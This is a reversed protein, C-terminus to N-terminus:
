WGLIKEIENAVSLPDLKGNVVSIRQSAEYYEVVKDTEAHFVELRHRITKDDDDDRGRKSLRAISVDDNIDILLVKEIICNHKDVFEDLWKAQEIDRPFGDSIIYSDDASNIIAEAVLENVVDNDVLDGSELDVGIASDTKAKARVLDGIRIVEFKQRKSLFDIQTDKGSGPMGVVVLLKKM